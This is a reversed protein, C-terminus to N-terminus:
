TLLPIVESLFIIQCAAAVAPHGMGHDNEM